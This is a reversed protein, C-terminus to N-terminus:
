DDDDDEENEEAKYPQGPTGPKVITQAQKDRIESHRIKGGLNATWASLGMTIIASALVIKSLGEIKRKNKNLLGISALVGTLIMFGLTIFAAEEHQEIQNESVGALGEIMEEAPEGTFYVPLAALGAIFLVLFGLKRLEEQPKWTIWLLILLGFLTALIPIHNILLHIHAWNM